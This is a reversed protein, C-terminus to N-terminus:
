GKWRQITALVQQIHSRDHTTVFSVLEALVTPGFIAHRATLSWEEDNLSELMTIMQSRIDIFDRLAAPGDMDRYNREVAWPDTDIGPIFPNTEQIIKEFRPINVERDVDRLHCFIETLSWEDPEPRQQWQEQTLGKQITGFAAPTAKLVALLAVPTLIDTRIEAAEVQKLWTPIQDLTGSASLPHFGEPLQAQNPTVWFVPMGLQKAPILDDQISNGVMVAPQNPCGLQAIIEALYAPNPKAFHLGEYSTILSFPIQDPDLGAWRLRHLIAKRPFLPNTAVVLQHGQEKAQAIMGAAEVRRSTLSHLDPYVKDYFQEIVPRLEDKSRGIAPYFTQDFANELSIAPANNTLMKKTAALLCPVMIEPAVYQSLHKGLAKLYVPLFVDIDNNLLTDDLDLLLTLTM